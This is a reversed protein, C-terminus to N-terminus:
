LLAPPPKRNKRRSVSTGSHDTGRRKKTKNQVKGRERERGGQKPAIRVRERSGCIQLKHASFLGGEMKPTADLLARGLATALSAFTLWGGGDAIVHRFSLRLHHLGAHIHWEARGDGGDAIWLGGSSDPPPLPPPPPHLTKSSPPMM